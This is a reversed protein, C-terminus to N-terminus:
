VIVINNIIKCSLVENKKVCNDNSKYIYSALLAGILYKGLTNEVNLEDRYELYIYTYFDKYMM